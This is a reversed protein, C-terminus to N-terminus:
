FMLWNRCRTLEEEADGAEYILGIESQEIGRAGLKVPVWSRGNIRIAKWIRLARLM